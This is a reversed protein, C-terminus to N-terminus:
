RNEGEHLAQHFPTVPNTAPEPIASAIVASSAPGISGFCWAEGPRCVYRPPAADVVSRVELLQDLYRLADCVMCRTEILAPDFDLPMTM